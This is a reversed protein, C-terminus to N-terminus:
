LLVLYGKKDALTKVNFRALNRKAPGSIYRGDWSFRSQHCPCLFIKEDEQYNIRCGLHTCTRSIALPGKLTDFLVFEPEVLFQGTELTDRIHVKRPPRYRKAVVFKLLPYSLGLAVGWIGAGKFFQRRNM